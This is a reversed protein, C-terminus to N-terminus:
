LSEIAVGLVKALARILDRKAELDADHRRLQAVERMYADQDEASEFPYYEPVPRRMRM